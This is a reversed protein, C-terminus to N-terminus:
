SGAQAAYTHMLDPNKSAAERWKDFELRWQVFANITVASIIYSLEEPSVKLYADPIALSFLKGQWVVASVGPDVPDDGWVGIAANMAFDEATEMEALHAYAEEIDSFVHHDSVAM